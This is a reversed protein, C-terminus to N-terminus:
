PNATLAGNRFGAKDLVWGGGRGVRSPALAGPGSSRARLDTSATSWRWGKRQAYIYAELARLKPDNPDLTKGKAPNEICWEIMDRLLAVRQLQVQYKPYTEPHTNAADPHCMDCSVGITGGLAKWDHFVRKGEDVFKQTETQWVKYDRSTFSAYTDGQQQGGQPAKELQPPASPKPQTTGGSAQAMEWHEGPHEQQWKEMLENAVARGQAETAPQGPKLTKIEVSTKGDCLMVVTGDGPAAPVPHAPQQARLALPLAATAALIAALGLLATRNSQPNTTLKM